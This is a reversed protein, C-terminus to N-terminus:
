KSKPPIATSGKWDVPFIEFVLVVAPVDGKNHNASTDNGAVYYADGAKLITTKGAHSRTVEGATVVRIGPGVHHHEGVYGGPRFTTESVRLRYKGNLEALYGSMVAELKTKGDADKRDVKQTDQAMSSTVCLTALCGSIFLRRM